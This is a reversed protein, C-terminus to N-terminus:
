MELFSSPVLFQQKGCKFSTSCKWSIVYISKGFILRSVIFKFRENQNGHLKGEDFRLTDSQPSM